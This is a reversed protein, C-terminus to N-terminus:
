EGRCNKITNNNGVISSRLENMFNDDEIEYIENYIISNNTIQTTCITCEFWTIINDKIIYYWRNGCVECKYKLVLEKREDKDEKKLIKKFM